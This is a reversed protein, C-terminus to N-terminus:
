PPLRRRQIRPRPWAMSRRYPHVVLCRFIVCRYPNRLLTVMVSEPRRGPQPDRRVHRVGATIPLGGALSWVVPSQCCRFIVSLPGRIFGPPVPPPKPSARGTSSQRLHYRRPGSITLRTIKVPKRAVRASAGNGKALLRGHDQDRNLMITPRSISAQATAAHRLRSRTATDHRRTHGNRKINATITQQNMM